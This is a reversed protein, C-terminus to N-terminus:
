HEVDAETFLPELPPLQQKDRRKNVRDADRQQLMAADRLLIECLEATAQHTYIPGDFGQKVLAPLRGSHDIHAHSLVVCFIESAEFEFPERNRAVDTKGGQILGCDLLLQQQHLTLLHCSGTVEETAGLFQLTMVM